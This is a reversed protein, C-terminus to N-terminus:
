LHLNGIDGANTVTLLFGFDGSIRLLHARSIVRRVQLVSLIARVEELCPITEFFVLDVGDSRALVDLRERHWEKLGVLGVSKGYDGRYESGDALAAGYCGASAAVLPRLRTKNPVCTEDYTKTLGVVDEVRRVGKRTETAQDQLPAMDHTPSNTLLERDPEEIEESLIIEKSTRDRKTEQYERWFQDRAQVALKVSLLLLDTAKERDFGKRQDNFLMNNWTYLILQISPNPVFM